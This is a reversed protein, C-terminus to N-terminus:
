KEEVGTICTPQQFIRFSPALNKQELLLDVHSRLALSFSMILICALFHLTCASKDQWHNKCSFSLAPALCKQSHPRMVSCQQSTHYSNEAKELFNNLM